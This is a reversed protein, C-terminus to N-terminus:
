AGAGREAKFPIWVHFVTKGPVSDVTIDGGHQVAVIRHVIDLGMGTGEGMPKTTFFPEFIRSVVDPPIGAGTDCVEVCACEAERRTRLTLTGADDMADIANDILNTWVQHMEGPYVPVLPLDPAFERVVRISKKKLKHGLIVLTNELGAVLDHPEKEPARDMHAYVKISGVLQSIREVASTIDQVLLNSGASGEIWQLALSLLEPPIKGAFEDLDAPTVGADALLSSMVWPEPVSANELWDTIADEREARDVASLAQAANRQMIRARFERASAMHEPKINLVMLKPGLALLRALRDKM